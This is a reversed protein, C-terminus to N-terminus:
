RLTLERVHVHSPGAEDVNRVRLTLTRVPVPRSGFAFVITPDEKHEPLTKSLRIPSGSNSSALSITAGLHMSATTLTASTLLRPRPFTVKVVAPNAELTSMLTFRDGDFIDQIRGRDLLSHAVVVEEDGLRVREIVLRRRERAEAAFIPDAQASYEMRLFYFGPRGDPYLLTQEIRLGSFRRDALTRAYEDPTMVFLLNRDLPQRHLRYADVTGLRLRPEDGLFFRMVTDTGNAWTPSLLVTTEPAADLQRRIEASVQRGGYQMGSLGYARYWTPGRVLADALMAFAVGALVVFAGVAVYKPAARRSLLELAWDLGIAIVVAAPIVFLLVRTILLEAVAGGALAALGAILIVRFRPTRINALCRVLGIAAFPLLPLLLHGYGKMRHRVLDHPDDPFFWYRPNLAAAFESGFLGLKDLSSLHPRVLYSDVFRLQFTLEGPHQLRFRLYPLALVVLVLSGALLHRRQQWHFRADSVLLLAGTAVVVVEASRYSYFTLAGFGIAAYLSGTSGQRYRLYFYLFWAYCAAALTPEFATRSHLFWAPTVALVLAGLWWFRVKFADRLMMAVAATGTLAILASTARTAFASFGFLAYPVIQAYVSTGLTLLPGNPFFTPLLDGESNRLGNDLFDAADTSQVAEDSFFYIPFSELGILRTLMFVVLSGGFLTTALSLRRRRGLWTM